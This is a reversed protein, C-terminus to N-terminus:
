CGCCNKARAVILYCCRWTTRICWGWTATYPMPQTLDMGGAMLDRLPGFAEQGEDPDGIYAAVIGLVPKGVLEPPVSAIGTIM